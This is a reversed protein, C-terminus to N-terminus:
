SLGRVEGCAGLGGAGGKRRESAEFSGTLAGRATHEGGGDGIELGLFVRYLFGVFKRTSKLGWQGVGGKGASNKTSPIPKESNSSLTV